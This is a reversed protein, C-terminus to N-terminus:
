TPALAIDLHATHNLNRTTMSISQRTKRRTLNRHQVRVPQNQAANAQRAPYETQIIRIAMRTVKKAGAITLGQDKLLFKILSIVEVDKRTYYRRGSVFIPKIQSFKSEWFRLTHTSINSKKKSNGGIEKALESINILKNNRINRSSKSM